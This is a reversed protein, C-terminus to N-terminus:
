RLALCSSALLCIKTSFKFYMVFWAELVYKHLVKMSITLVLSKGM